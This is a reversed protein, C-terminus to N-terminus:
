TRILGGNRGRRLHVLSWFWHFPNTVKLWKVPKPQIKTNPSTKLNSLPPTDVKVRHFPECPGTSVKRKRVHRTIERYLDEVSVSVTISRNVHGRDPIQLCKVDM